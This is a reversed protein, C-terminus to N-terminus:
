GNSRNFVHYTLSRLHYAPMSVRLSKSKSIFPITVSFFNKKTDSFFEKQYRLYLPELRMDSQKRHDIRLDNGGTTFRIIM